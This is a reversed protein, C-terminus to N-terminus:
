EGLYKKLSERAHHLRSKVTGAPVDLVTAIEEVCLDEGYFLHVVDRQGAPLQSIAAALDVSDGAAARDPDFPASTPVEAQASSILRRQRQNARISDICKRRAISYIWAPFHATDTLQKLGRIAGIWTEQVIDRATEPRGVTRTVYRILRPTWRRALRNFAEHSGAQALVTLYGDLARNPEDNM